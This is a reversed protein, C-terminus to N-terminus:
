MIKKIASSSWCSSCFIWFYHKLAVVRECFKESM